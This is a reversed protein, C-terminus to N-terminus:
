NRSSKTGNSKGNASCKSNNLGLEVNDQGQSSSDKRNLRFFSAVRETLNRKETTAEEESKTNNQGDASKELDQAKGNTDGDITTLEVATFESAKIIEKKPSDDDHESASNM